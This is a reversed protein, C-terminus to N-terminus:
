RRQTKAPSKLLKENETPISPKRIATDRREQTKWAEGLIGSTEGPEADESIGQSPARMKEGWLAVCTGPHHLLSLSDQHAGLLSINYTLM